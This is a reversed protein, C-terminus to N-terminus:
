SGICILVKTPMIYMCIYSFFASKRLFNKVFCICIYMSFMVSPYNPSLILVCLSRPTRYTIYHIRLTFSQSGKRVGQGGMPLWAVITYDRSCKRVTQYRGQGNLVQNHFGDTFRRDAQDSVYCTAGSFIVECWESGHRLSNNIQRTVYTLKVLSYLLLCFLRLVRM